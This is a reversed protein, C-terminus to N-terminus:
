ISDHKRNNIADKYTNLSLNVVNAPLHNLDTLSPMLLHFRLGCKLPALIVFFRDYRLKNVLNTHAM